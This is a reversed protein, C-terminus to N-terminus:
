LTYVIVRWTRTQLLIPHININVNDLRIKTLVTNRKRIHVQISAYKGFDSKQVRGTCLRNLSGSLIIGDFFKAM